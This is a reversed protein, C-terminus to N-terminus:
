ISKLQDQIQEIHVVELDKFEERVLQAIEKALEEDEGKETERMAKMIAIEIKENEFDVINGNRKEVRLM